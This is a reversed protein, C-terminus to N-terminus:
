LCKKHVFGELLASSTAQYLIHFLVSCGCTSVVSPCGHRCRFRISGQWFLEFDCTSYFTFETQLSPADEAGANLSLIMDVTGFAPFSPALISIRTKIEGANGVAREETVKRVKFAERGGFTVSIGDEDEAFVHALGPWNRVDLTVIRYGTTPGDPPYVSFIHPQSDDIFTWPFTIPAFHKIKLSVSPMTSPSAIFLFLHISWTAIRGKLLLVQMSCNATTNGFLVVTATVDALAYYDLSNGLVATM